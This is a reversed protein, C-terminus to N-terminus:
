RGFGHTIGSEPQALVRFIQTPDAERYVTVTDPLRTWAFCLRRVGARYADCVRGIADCVRGSRRVGARHHCSIDPYEPFPVAAKTKAATGATLDGRLEGGADPCARYRRRNGGSERFSGRSDSGRLPYIIPGHFVLTQGAAGM